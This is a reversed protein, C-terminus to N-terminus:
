TAPTVAPFCSGNCLEPAGMGGRDRTKPAHLKADLDAAFTGELVAILNRGLGGLYEDGKTAAAAKIVPLSPKAADGVFYLGTMAQLRVYRNQNTDGLVGTLYDVGAKVEGLKVVAEAAVIRNQPLSDGAVMALLDAKAPAAKDGLILLGQAAWHRIVPNGDKMRQRFLPLNAVQNKAAMEALAMVRPLPYAARDRSKDYGEMPAAEPIFGNDNIDILHKDMVSRLRDAHARHAPSDILNNVGDRDIQLDYLEEYVKPEFYRRQDANLSGARYASMWAVYSRQSYQYNGYLGAPRNPNYNRIYRYRGDAVTRVFDYREDMRNRMGFAYQERTKALPGLLANGPMHAPQQQGSLSLLTPTLDILSVPSSVKSGPAHPSLHRWKPPVYIVMATRFGEDTGYRKSRPLVGGNDSYYFVITDEALGDKALLDLRKGLNDDMIEMRNYYSAFDTRVEPTDPLFKPVRVDAPKVRGETESFVHSEHTTFDNYVSMFPMGAPRNRWHAHPGSENFVKEPVRDCNWDTKSNNTCYYGADRLHEPYTKFRDPFHSASEAGIGCRMNNSPACSEPYVGTLIGFRSPACVPANSFVNTYLIGKAALADINPTHAVTDGYAGIYPNNDESVLWLINPRSGASAQPPTQAQGTGAMMAAAGALLAHRRPLSPTNM